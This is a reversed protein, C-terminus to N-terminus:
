GATWPGVLEAGMSQFDRVNRTAVAVGRLRAITTIQCDIHPVPRGASRCKAAIDSHERASAGDFPLVRDDFNERLIAKIALALADHCWSVPLIADGYCLEAEDIVSFYLAMALHERGWTEM